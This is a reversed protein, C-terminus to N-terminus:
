DNNCIDSTLSCIDSSLYKLASSFLCIAWDQFFLVMNTKHKNDDTM